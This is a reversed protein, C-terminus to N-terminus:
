KLARLLFSYKWALDCQAISMKTHVLDLKITAVDKALLDAKLKKFERRVVPTLVTKGDKAMMDCRLCVDNTYDVNNNELAWIGLNIAYELAQLEDKRASNVNSLIVLVVIQYIAYSTLLGLGTFHSIAMSMALIEVIYLGAQIVIQRIYNLM